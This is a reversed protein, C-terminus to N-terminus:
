WRVGLDHAVQIASVLGDEHFGYRWYAGCYHTRHVGSVARWREQARIAEVSFRPHRYQFRAIVSGEALPERPNLTVCYRTPGDIGQLRNLDYTLTPSAEVSAGLRYNWSARAGPVAPLVRADTHLWTENVTTSFSRFV